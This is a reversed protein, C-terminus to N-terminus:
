GRCTMDKLTSILELKDSSRKSWYRALPGADHDITRSGTTTAIMGHRQDTRLEEDKTTLDTPRGKIIHPCEIQVSTRKDM